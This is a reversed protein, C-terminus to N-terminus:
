LSMRLGIVGAVAIIGGILSRASAKENEFRQSFPIITLPTLAVIPLVIGTPTTALAWQFCSVGLAPGVTGNIVFWKWAPRMRERFPLGVPRQWRHAGYIAMAFLVGGWIRQYAASIGDISEGASRAVEYAKRSVVSGFVQGLAAILGFIVGLVLANREIHRHEKPALAVAVGLLIVLVCAVQFVTLSTGLWAWELAAAGPAALCHVLIMSLRSGIRPLAQYLAFDGIGFGVVGSAFFYPLAKGQFGSGFTHAYIGLLIAALIIRLFNAEIGGVLRSFRSGAVASISYCLTALLAPLM